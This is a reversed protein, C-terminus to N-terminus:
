HGGKRKIMAAGYRCVTGDPDQHCARVKCVSTGGDWYPCEGCCKRSRGSLRAFPDDVRRGPRGPEPMLEGPEDMSKDM